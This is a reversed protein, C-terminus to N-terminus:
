HLSLRTMDLQVGHGMESTGHGMGWASRGHGEEGM